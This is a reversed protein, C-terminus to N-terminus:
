CLIGQAAFSFISEGVILHDVVRVDILALARRVRETTMIDASSPEAIGSPHNHVLIVSQARNELVCELVHRPYVHTGDVTGHFLEVYDILRLRGDLLILAFVEHDRAGIQLIVFERLQQRNQLVPAGPRFHAAVLRRAHRLVVADPAQHFADGAKVFLPTAGEDMELDALLRTAFPSRNRRVLTTSECEAM